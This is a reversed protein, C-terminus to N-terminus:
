RPLSDERISGDPTLYGQNRLATIRQEYTSYYHYEALFKEVQAVPNWWPVAAADSPGALNTFLHTTVQPILASTPTITLGLMRYTPDNAKPGQQFTQLPEGRLAVLDRIQWGHQSLSVIDGVTAYVSIKINKERSLVALRLLDSLSHDGGLIRLSHVKLKGTEILVEAIRSGNSHCVVEDVEVGNLRGLQSTTAPSLHNILALLHDEFVRVLDGPGKTGFAFVDDFPLGTFPDVEKGRADWAEEPTKWLGWILIRDLHAKPPPVKITDLTAAIRSLRSPLLAEYQERDSAFGRELNLIESTIRMRERLRAEQDREAQMMGDLVGKLQQVRQLRARREEELRRALAEQAERMRRLNEQVQAPSLPAPGQSGGPQSTYEPPPPPNSVHIWNTVEHVTDFSNDPM